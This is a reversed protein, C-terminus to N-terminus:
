LTFAEELSILHCRSVFVKEKSHGLFRNEHFFKFGYHDKLTTINDMTGMGSRVLRKFGVVFNSCNPSALTSFQDM